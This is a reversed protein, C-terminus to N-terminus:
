LLRVNGVVSCLLRVTGVVGCLLRVSGVVSSWEYEYEYAKYVFHKLM